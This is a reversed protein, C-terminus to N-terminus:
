ACYRRGHRELPNQLMGQSFVKISDSGVSLFDNKVSVSENLIGYASDYKTLHANTETGLDNIAVIEIKKKIQITSLELSIGVLEETGM